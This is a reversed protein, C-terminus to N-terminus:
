AATISSSEVTSLPAPITWSEWAYVEVTYSGSASPTWSISFTTSFGGPITLSATGIHVVTGLADKVQVIYLTPQNATATNSLETALLVPTDVPALFITNGNADQLEPTATTIPLTPASVGVTSTEIIYLTTAVGPTWGPIDATNSSTDTYFSTITDGLAVKLQSGATISTSFTFSGTFIGTNLGTETATLALGAPDTDSYITIAASEILVSNANADPETLTVTAQDSLDYNDQDFTTTATTTSISATAAVPVSTSGASNVPDIYTITLGDGSYTSYTGSTSTLTFFGTFIGSDVDTETLANPPNAVATMTTTKIEINAVAISNIATPNENMDADNITIWVTGTTHYADQDLSVTGSTATVQFTIAVSEAVGAANVRDRYRLTITDGKTVLIVGTSSTGTQVFDLNGTFVGTNVDTETLVIAAGTLDSQSKVWVEGTQTTTGYATGAATTAEIQLENLNGDPETLTVDVTDGVAYEVKDVSLLGTTSIVNASATTSVANGAADAADAYTVTIVDGPAVGALLQHRVNFIGTAPGTETVTVSLGPSAGYGAVNAGARTVHIDATTASTQVTDYDWNLDNDSVTITVWEGLNTGLTLDGAHYANQDLAVMGTVTEAVNYQTSASRLISSGAVDLSDNYYATLTTAGATAVEIIPINVGTSVDASGESWRVTGTFVGTSAGTELLLVGSSGSWGGTASMVVVQGGPVQTSNAVSASTAMSQITSTSTNLDPDTVTITGTTWYGRYDSSDWAISGSNTRAFATASRNSAVGTHRFQDNYQATIIADAGMRITEAGVAGSTATLSFWFYGEFVGTSIGSETLTLDFWSSDVSSSITVEGTDFTTGNNNTTTDRVVANVDLDPETLTITAMDNIVYETKDFTLVGTNAAVTASSYRSAGGDPAAADTYTATLVEGLTGNLSIATYYMNSFTGSNPGTEWLTQLSSANTSSLTYQASTITDVATPDENEDADPVTVYISANGATTQIPPYTTKDFTISGYNSSKFLSVSVATPVDNYTITVSADSSVGGATAVIDRATLTASILPEQAGIATENNAEFGGAPISPDQAPAGGPAGAAPNGFTIFGVWTGGASQYMPLISTAQTVSDNAIRLTTQGSVTVSPMTANPGIIDTDSLTVQIIKDGTATSDSLTLTGTAANATLTLPAIAGLIGLLMLISMAIAMPKKMNINIMSM